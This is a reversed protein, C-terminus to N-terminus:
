KKEAAAKDSAPNAAPNASGSDEADSGGTMPTRRPLIMGPGSPTGPINTRQPNDSPSNGGPANSSFSASRGVRNESGSIFESEDIAPRQLSRIIRPTISLIIESRESSDKQSGFIRNLVPLEGIGPVKNGSTREEDSILGALIQTEGDKLRLGTSANRTGIQYARTGGKSEVEKVLNSVELNINISVEDDLHINPEVNLTLGVDVYSVSEAVFGTSTSTTTIVPLRDGIVIKAKGKNKVRIRPNALINSDTDEKKANIVTDDVSLRINGSNIGRLDNLVLQRETGASKNSGLLSLSATEPWHIGLDRTRSRKVELVEVELMVEPDSLDQVAIIREAMRLVEPTDRMIILGLREDTVVDRAKLLTKITYALTKVDGNAVFFTRVNLQQYDKLKQPTNPYIMISNENMVSQELQNSALLMRVADEIPTQKVLITTRLDARVEKDFYFNLGSVRAIVDFVSRLPADRFELTVPKRFGQALKGETQNDQSRRMKAQLELAAKHKPNELLVSRLFELADRNAYAGGKKLSAEAKAMAEQHRRAAQVAELGQRAAGNNAELALVQQYMQEAERLQQQSLHKEANSLYRTIITAKQNLLTIKYQANTPELRSAQELRALGPELQGSALLEQGERYAQSGACGFLALLALGCVALSRIRIFVPNM